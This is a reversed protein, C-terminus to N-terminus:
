AISILNSATIPNLIAMLNTLKMPVSEMGKAFTNRGHKAIGQRSTQWLQALPVLMIPVGAREARPWFLTLFSEVCKTAPAQLLTRNFTRAPRHRMVTHIHVQGRTPASVNWSAWETGMTHRAPSPSLMFSLPPTMGYLPSWTCILEKSCMQRRGRRLSSSHLM